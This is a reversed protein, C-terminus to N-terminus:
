FCSQTEELCKKSNKNRATCRAKSKLNISSASSWEAEVTLSLAFLINSPVSIYYYNM